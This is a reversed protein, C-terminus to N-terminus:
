LNLVSKSIYRPIKCALIFKSRIPLIILNKLSFETKQKTSLVGEACPEQESAARFDHRSANSLPSYWKVVTAASPANLLPALHRTAWSLAGYTFFVPSLFGLSFLFSLTSVQKKARSM